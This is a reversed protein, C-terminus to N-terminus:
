KTVGGRTSMSHGPERTIYTRDPRLTECNPGRDTGIGAIAEHLCRRARHLRVGAAAASCGLVRGAEAANLGEWGVLMLLERDREELSRLCLLATLGEEDRPLVQAGDLARGLRATLEKRRHLRRTENSLVHRATVYLWLLADDGMPVDDLRRWAISFTEAVVDAADDPSASRRLAYALLRSRVRRYLADFREWREQEM